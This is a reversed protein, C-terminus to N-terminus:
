HYYTEALPSARAFGIESHYMLIEDIQKEGIDKLEGGHVVCARAERPDVRTVEVNKRATIDGATEM